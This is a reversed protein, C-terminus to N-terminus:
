KSDDVIRLIRDSVALVGGPRERACDRARSRAQRALLRRAGYIHPGGEAAVARKRANLKAGRM